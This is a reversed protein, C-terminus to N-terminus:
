TVYELTRKSCLLCDLRLCNIDNYMYIYRCLTNICVIYMHTCLKLFVVFLIILNFIKFLMVESYLFINREHIKIYNNM